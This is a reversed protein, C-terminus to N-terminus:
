LRLKQFISFLDVDQKSEFYRGGFVTNRNEMKNPSSRKTEVMLHSFEVLENSDLREIIDERRDERMAM